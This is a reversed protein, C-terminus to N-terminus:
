QFDEFTLERGQFKSGERLMSNSLGIGYLIHDLKSIINKEIITDIDITYDEIQSLDHFAVYGGEPIWTPGDKVFIFNYSDGKDLKLYVDNALVINHWAAGKKDGSLNAYCKDSGDKADARASENTAAADYHGNENSSPLWQGLSARAVLDEVPTVGNRVDDVITQLHSLVALPEAEDWIMKISDFQVTKGIKATNTAKAALGQMKIRADVPKTAIDFPTAGTGPQWVIRGAYKNRRPIYFRDMIMEPEVVMAKSQVEEQCIKTLVEGLHEAIVACEEISKDDGLKVFISDTHGYIVQYGLKETEEQIRLLATRGGYTITKAIDLDGWAYGKRGFGMLGYFTARLRKVTSQAGDWKRYADSGKGHENAAEQRLAKYRDRLGDLEKVCKPLVGEPSRRFRCGDGIIDDDREQGAKVKTEWSTNYAVMVSPYLGAFDLICVNKHLGISDTYITDEDGKVRVVPEPAPNMIIAGKLEEDFTEQWGTKQIFNAKRMFYARAYSSGSFTSNYQCKALEQLNQQGEILNWENEIDIMLEVDRYNYYLFDDLWQDYDGDYFDAKFPIREGDEDLLVEGNEDREYSKGVGFLTEGVVGLSNGPLKSSTSDMYVRKFLVDLSVTLRGIIPQAKARYQHGKFTPKMMHRHEGLSVPSLRDAGVGTSELRYFLTPWDYFGGGWALMVDPDIEEVYEVFSELLAKETKFHHVIVNNGDFTEIKVEEELNYHQVWQVRQKSFSDYAGIMNIEQFDRPNNPRLCRTPGADESRFQLAELDVFLKRMQYPKVEDVEDVLYRDEYPVDAEFSPKVRKSFVRAMWPKNLVVKILPRGDSTLKDTPELREVMWKTSQHENLLDPRVRTSASDKASVLLEGTLPVYCYPEYDDVVKEKRVWQGQEEERWRLLLKNSDSMDNQYDPEYLTNIIM